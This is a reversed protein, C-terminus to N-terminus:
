ACALGAARTFSAGIALALPGGASVIRMQGGNVHLALEGAKGGPARVTTGEIRGALERSRERVRLVGSFEQFRQSLTLSAGRLLGTGCWLGDVAAPVTWLYVKSSKELGIPKDPVPVVATRDPKWDGMDFDHSVVRTGPKLALLSPRLQLNVDPLLYMTIVTAQSLDTKFLDQVRFSVRDSVGAAAANRVSQQVLEPVLEVGLGSAGFRRAAVIVIRGDGSGLDLVHDSPGVGAMNLMELTVNDPTTVFPVEDVQQGQTAASALLGALLAPLFRPPLTM